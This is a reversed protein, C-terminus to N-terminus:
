DNLDGLIPTNSMIHNLQHLMRQNNWIERATPHRQIAIRIAAVTGQEAPSSDANSRRFLEDLEESWGRYGKLSAAAYIELLETTAQAAINDDDTRAITDMRGKARMRCLMEVSSEELLEAPNNELIHWVHEAVKAGYETYEGDKLYYSCTQALHLGAVVHGHAWLMEFIRVGQRISAPTDKNVLKVAAIGLNETLLRLVTPMQNVSYGSYFHQAVFALAKAVDRRIPIESSTCTDEMLQALRMLEGANLETPTLLFELLYDNEKATPQWAGIFARCHLQLGTPSFKLDTAFDTHDIVIKLLRDAQEDQRTSLQSPTLEEDVLIGCNDFDSFSQLGAVLATILRFAPWHKQGNKLPIEQRAQEQKGLVKAASDVLRFFRFESNNLHRLREARSAALKRDLFSPSSKDM